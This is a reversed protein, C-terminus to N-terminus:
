GRGLVQEGQGAQPSFDKRRMSDRHPVTRNIAAVTSQTDTIQAQSRCPESRSRSVERGKQEGRRFV